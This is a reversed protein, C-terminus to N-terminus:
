NIPGLGQKTQKNTRNKCRRNKPKTLSQIKKPVNKCASSTCQLYFFVYKKFIYQLYRGLMELCCVQSLHMWWFTCAFVAQLELETWTIHRELLHCFNLRFLPVDCHCYVWEHLHIEFIGIPNFKALFSYVSKWVQIWIKNNRLRVHM